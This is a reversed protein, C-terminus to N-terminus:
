KKVEYFLNFSIDSFRRLKQEAVLRSDSQSYQGNWDRITPSTNEKGTKLAPKVQNLVKPQKQKLPMKPAIYYQPVM